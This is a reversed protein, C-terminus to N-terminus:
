VGKQALALLFTCNDPDSYGLSALLELSATLQKQAVLRQLKEFNSETPRSLNREGYAKRRKQYPQATRKKQSVSLSM